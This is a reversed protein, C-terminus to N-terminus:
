DEESETGSSEDSRNNGDTSDEEVDSTESITSGDINKNKLTGGWLADIVGNKKLLGKVNHIYEECLKRVKPGERVLNSDKVRKGHSLIFNLQRTVKQTTELLEIIADEHAQFHKICFPIVRKLVAMFKAGHKLQALLHSSKALTANNKTLDFIQVMMSTLNQVVALCSAASDNSKAIPSQFLRATENALVALVSTLYYGFTSRSCTAFSKVPGKCEPTTPLEMMAENILVHIAKLRGWEMVQFQRGTADPVETISHELYLSVLKGLNSKNLATGDRWERRLFGLCLKSLKTKMSQLQGKSAARVTDDSTGSQIKSARRVLADICDVGVMTFVLDDTERGTIAEELLDFLSAASRIFIPHKKMSRLGKSCIPDGDAIQKIIAEFYPRGSLTHFEETKLLTTVCELLLQTCELTDEDDDTECNGLIEAAAVLREHISLFVNGDICLDLFEFNSDVRRSGQRGIGSMTYPNENLGELLDTPDARNLLSKLSDNFLRLLSNTIRDGVKVNKLESAGLSLMLEQSSSVNSGAVRIEPFGLAFSAYASLPRLADRTRSELLGEYKAKAKLLKQKSKMKDAAKKKAAKKIANLAKKEEASMRGPDDAEDEPFPRVGDNITADITENLLDRPVSLPPMGPPAFSYCQKACLFVEEELDLLCKLKEVLKQRTCEQEQTMQSDNSNAPRFAAVYVFSNIIERCWSVASFLSSVTAIKKEESLHRFEISSSAADPLLIPCGLLADINGIGDGGFREDYAVTLLRLLPCLQQPLIERTRPDDSTFLSLVKLYVVAEDRDINYRLEAKPARKNISNGDVMAKDDVDKINIANKQSNSAPDLYSDVNDLDGLYENELAGSFRDLIWAKVCPPLSCARIAFCLEDFFISMFSYSTDRTAWQQIQQRPHALCSKHALDLM